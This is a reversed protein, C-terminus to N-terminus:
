KLHPHFKVKKITLPQLNSIQHKEIELSSNGRAGPNKQWIKSVFTTLGLVNYICRSRSLFIVSFIGLNPHFWDWILYPIIQSDKFLQFISLESFSDCRLIPWKPLQTKEFDIMAYILTENQFYTVESIPWMSISWNSFFESWFHTVESITWKPFLWTLFCCIDFNLWKLHSM